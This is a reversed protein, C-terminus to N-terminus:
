RSNRAKVIQPCNSLTTKIWAAEAPSYGLGDYAVGAQRLPNTANWDANSMPQVTLFMQKGALEFSVVQDTAEVGVALGFAGSNREWGARGKHERLTVIALSATVTEGVKLGGGDVSIIDDITATVAAHPVTCWGAGPGCPYVRLEVVRASITVGGLCLLEESSLPAITLAVAARPLLLFLAIQLWNKM